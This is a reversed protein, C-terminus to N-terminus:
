SHYQSFHYPENYQNCCYLQMAVSSLMPMNLADYDRLIQKAAPMNYLQRDHNPVRILETTLHDSFQISPTSDMPQHSILHYIHGCYFDPLHLVNLNQNEAPSYLFLM